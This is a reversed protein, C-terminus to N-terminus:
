VRKASSAVAGSTEDSAVRNAYVVIAVLGPAAIEAAGFGTWALQHMASIMFWLFLARAIVGHSPHWRLEYTLLVTLVLAPGFWLLSATADLQVTRDPLDMALHGRILAYYLIAAYALASLGTIVAAFRLAATAALSRAPSMSCIKWRRIPFSGVRTMMEPRLM